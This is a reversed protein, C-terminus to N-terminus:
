DNHYKAVHNIISTGIMKGITVPVANGIHKSLPTIRVPEEDKVFKFEKPFGQLIAGERISLARDQEPHGHRGSSFGTFKTTITPSPKDWETRTWSSFNLRASKVKVEDPWGENPAGGPKAHQMRILNVEGLKGAKHIRDNPHEEGHNIPPLQGIADRMTVYTSPDEHTYPLSSIPGLKSALVLLRRRTQPLGYKVCDEKKWFVNYGQSELDDIFEKFLPKSALPIVNESIVIDPSSERITRLFDLLLNYKRDSQKADSSQGTNATSFTQCPACGALVRIAGDSYFSNIEEGTLKLVSKLIFPAESNEEFAFKASSDTDVGAVNKLGALKLGYSLGGIGCFLDVCEINM